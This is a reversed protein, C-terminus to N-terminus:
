GIGLLGTVFEKGLLLWYGPLERVDFAQAAFSDVEERSMAARSVLGLDAPFNPNDPNNTIAKFIEDPAFPDPTLEYGGFGGRAQCAHAIEGISRFFNEIRNAEYARRVMNLNAEVYVNLFSSRWRAVTLDLTFGIVSYSASAGNWNKTHDSAATGFPVTEEVADAESNTGTEDLEVRSITGGPRFGFPTLRRAIDSHVALLDNLPGSLVVSLSQSM